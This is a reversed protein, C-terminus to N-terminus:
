GHIEVLSLARKVAQDHEARDFAFGLGSPFVSLAATFGVAHARFDDWTVADGTRRIRATIAGRSPDLSTGLLLPVRGPLLDFTREGLLMELVERGAPAFGADARQLPSHVLGSLLRRHRSSLSRPLTKQLTRTLPLGDIIWQLGSRPDPNRLGYRSNDDGIVLAPPQATAAKFEEFTRSMYRGLENLAAEYGNRDFTFPGIADLPEPDRPEDEPEADPHVPREVDFGRWIVTKARVEIAVTLVSCEEDFCAPCYYLGVRGAAFVDPAETTLRRIQEFTSGPEFERRMLTMHNQVQDQGEFVLSRLFTGDIHFDFGGTPDPRLDFTNVM